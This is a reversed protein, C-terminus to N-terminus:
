MQRLAPAGDVSVREETLEDTEVATQWSFVTQDEKLYLGVFGDAAMKASTGAECNSPKGFRMKALRVEQRKEDQQITDHPAPLPRSDVLHNGCFEGAKDPYPGKGDYTHAM